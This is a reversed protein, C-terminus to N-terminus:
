IAGGHCYFLWALVLAAAGLLAGRRWNSGNHASPRWLYPVQLALGLMALPTFFANFPWSPLLLGLLVALLYALQYGAMLGATFYWASGAKLAM